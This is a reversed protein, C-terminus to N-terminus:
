TLLHLLQLGLLVISQDDLCQLCAIATWFFLNANLALGSKLSRALSQDPYSAAERLLIKLIHLFLARAHLAPPASHHNHIRAWSLSHAIEALHRLLLCVTRRDLRTPPGRATEFRRWLAYLGQPLRSQFNLTLALLSASFLHFVQLNALDHYNINAFLFGRAHPRQGLIASFLGRITPVKPSSMIARLHAFHPSDPPEHLRTLQYNMVVLLAFLELEQQKSFNTDRIRPGQVEGALM